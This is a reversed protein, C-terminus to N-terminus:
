VLGLSLDVTIHKNKLDVELVVTKLAPILIEKEGNKVVFVDNAGTEFIQDIKGLWNNKTDFVDAGVLDRVLYQDTQLYTKCTGIWYGKVQWVLEATNVNELKLILSYEHKTYDVVKLFCDRQVTEVKGDIFDVFENKENLVCVESLIQKLALKTNVLFQGYRKVPRVIKGIYVIDRIDNM